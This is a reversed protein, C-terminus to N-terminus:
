EEDIPSLVELSNDLAELRSFVPWQRRYIPSEPYPTGGAARELDQRDLDRELETPQSYIFTSFIKSPSMETGLPQPSANIKNLDPTVVAPGSSTDVTTTVSFQPPLPPLPPFPHYQRLGRTNNHLEESTVTEAQDNTWLRLWDDLANPIDFQINQFREMMMRLGDTLEHTHRQMVAFSDHITQTQHRLDDLQQQQNSSAESVQTEIRSIEQAFYKRHTQANGDVRDVDQQLEHM